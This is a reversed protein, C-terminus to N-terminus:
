FGRLQYFVSAFLAIVLLISLIIIGIYIRMVIKAFRNSPYKIRTVIIFAFAIMTSLYFLAPGGLLNINGTGWAFYLIGVKFLIGIIIPVGFFFFLSIICLVTATTNKTELDKQSPVNNRQYYQNDM